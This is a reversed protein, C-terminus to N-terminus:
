YKFRMEKEESRRVTTHDVLAGVVSHWRGCKDNLCLITYGASSPSASLEHDCEGCKRSISKYRDKMQKQLAEPTEHLLKKIAASIKM